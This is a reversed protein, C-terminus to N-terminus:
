NFTTLKLSHRNLYTKKKSLLLKKKNTYKKKISNKYKKFIRIKGGYSIDPYYRNIISMPFIEINQLLFQKLTIFRIPHNNFLLSDNFLEEFSSYQTTLLNRYSLINNALYKGSEYKLIQHGSINISYENLKDYQNSTLDFDNAINIITQYEIPIIKDKVLDRDFKYENDGGISFCVNKSTKINFRSVGNSIDLHDPFMQILRDLLKGLSGPESYNIISKRLYFIINPANLLERKYVNDKFNYEDFYEDIFHVESKDLYNPYLEEYKFIKKEGFNTTFKFSDIGLDCLINYNNKIIELVWFYYEDKINLQIKIDSIDSLDYNSLGILEYDRKIYIQGIDKGFIIYYKIIKDIDIPINDFWEIIPAKLYELLYRSFYTNFFNYKKGFLLLDPYYIYPKEIDFDPTIIKFFVNQQIINMCDYYSSFPIYYIRKYKYCRYRYLHQQYEEETKDHLQIMNCINSNTKYIKEINDANDNTWFINYLTDKYESSRNLGLSKTIIQTRVGSNEYFLEPLEPEIELKQQLAYISGTNYTM